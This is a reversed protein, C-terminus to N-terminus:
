YWLSEGDRIASQSRWEPAVPVSNMTHQNSVPRFGKERDVWKLSIPLLSEYLIPACVCGSACTWIIIEKDQNDHQIESHLRTHQQTFLFLVTVLSTKDTKHLFLDGTQIQWEQFTTWLTECCVYSSCQLLMNSPIFCNKRGQICPAWKKM